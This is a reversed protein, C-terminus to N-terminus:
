PREANRRVRVMVAAAVLDAEERWAADLPDAAALERWVQRYEGATYRALMSGPVPSTAQPRKRAAAARAAVDLAPTTVNPDSYRLAERAVHGLYTPHNRLRVCLDLWRHDEEILRRASELRWGQGERSFSSPALFGLAEAAVQIGADTALREPAFLAGVNDWPSGGDTFLARLAAGRALEDYDEIGERLAARAPSSDIAFLAHGTAARIPQVACRRWLDIFTPVAAEYRKQGLNDIRRRVDNLNKVSRVAAIGVQLIANRESESRSLWDSLTLQPRNALAQHEAWWRTIYALQRQPNERKINRFDM